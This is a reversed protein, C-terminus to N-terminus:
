TKMGIMNQIGGHLAGILKDNFLSKIVLFIQQVQKRTRRTIMIFVPVFVLTPSSGCEGGVRNCLVRDLEFKIQAVRERM